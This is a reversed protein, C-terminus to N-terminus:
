RERALAAECRAIERDARAAYERDADPLIGRAALDRWIAQARRHAALARRWHAAASDPVAAAMAAEAEGLEGHTQAFFSRLLADAPDLATREMLARARAAHEAHRGDALRALARALKAHAEILSARKLLNAPDAAVDESRLDLSARYSRLATQPDGLQAQMDGIRIYGYARDGRYQENKPDARSLAEVIAVDRRYSELAERHRGLRGLIEGDNYHSVALSRRYDANLPFDRVLDDRLRLAARNHELAAEFDGAALLAAGLHDHTVSLQRRTAPDGPQRESLRRALELQRRGLDVAGRVDGSDLRQLTESDLATILQRQMPLDEPAEAVLTEMLPIARRTAARAEEIRGIEWLLRGRKVLHNAYDRRTTLDASDARWLAEHIRRAKAFSELAGGTDGLNAFLTGGQVDALRDYAAALERQLSPDGAADRSLRDLYQLGDRVLRERVPTAGPLDRIADHYDFLVSRALARLDEFRREARAQADRARRAQWSTAAVGAVLSVAVLAAAAAGVRNRRLFKRARYGLTDPRAIVPLGALHRGLDDALQEASPYRRAPERHMAKLVITDLDGALRRSLREPTTGRAAAIEAAPRPPREGPGAAAPAVLAVSPREPEGGELARLVEAYARSAFRRPPRGCLLGYLLVGLAHVDSLTTAREGRVQEPSAYEPTMVPVGTATRPEDGAGDETLIRAIGFDLLRARGDAGVLVNSPKIDRHVVLRQHAYAVAACVQRFLDLREAVGLRRADCWRDIPEGEIHEMAFYPLGEDTTGGDYLRAIHPHDLQALIRRENRFRRLVSDTDMGRRILKLAIRQEFQGDAREALYVTGMGGRGLERVVRWPGIRRGPAPGDAAAGAPDASAPSQIFGGAREHADVLREVEARLAPDAGCAAALFAAREGAPLEVARDFLANIREWRPDSM